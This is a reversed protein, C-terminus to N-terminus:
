DLDGVRRIHLDERHLHHRVVNVDKDLRIHAPRWGLDRGLELGVRGANKPLLERVQTRAQRRQPAAAVEDGRDTGDGLGRDAAVDLVLLAASHWRQAVAVADFWVPRLGREQTLHQAVKALEVVGREFVANAGVFLADRDADVLLDRAQRDNPAVERVDPAPGRGSLLLHHPLEILGELGEEAPDLTAVLGPEGPEPSAVAVVGSVKTHAVAHRDALAPFETEDANGALDLHAPMAVKRGLRLGADQAAIRALPVDDKMDLNRRDLPCAGIADPQIHAKRSQHREAVSLRNGTRVDRLPVGALQASQLAGKGAALQARLHAALALEGDGSMLRVGSIRTSVEQVLLAPLEDIAETADGDFVQIDLTERAAHQGLFNVVGRPPLEDLHNAVLSFAGSALEDLDIRTASRLRAGLAPGDGLFREGFSLVATVASAGKISVNSRRHDHM